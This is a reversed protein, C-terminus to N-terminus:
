RQVQGGAAWPQGGGAGLRHQVGGGPVGVAAPDALEVGVQCGGVPDAVGGSGVAGVGFALGQDAFQAPGGAQGTPRPADGGIGFSGPDVDSAGEAGGDIGDGGGRGEGARVQLEGDSGAGGAAVLGGWSARGAPVGSAARSAPASVPAASAWIPVTAGASGAGARCPGPLVPGSAPALIGLFPSDAGAALLQRSPGGGGRTPSGARNQYRSSM